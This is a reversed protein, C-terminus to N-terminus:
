IERLKINGLLQSINRRIMSRVLTTSEMRFFGFVSLRFCAALLRISLCPCVSSDISMPLSPCLAVYALPSLFVPLSVRMYVSLYVNRKGHLYTHMCTLM